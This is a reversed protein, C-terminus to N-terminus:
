ESTKAREDPSSVASLRGSATWGNLSQSLQSDPARDLWEVMKPAAFSVVEDVVEREADSFPCLVYDVVTDSPEPSGIGLKLRSYDAHGLEAEVSKLGNHGGSSGKTRYRVRGLPLSLDDIAVLVDRRTCTTTQSPSSLIQSVARGSLNMFTLPWLLLSTEEGKQYREWKALGPVEGSGLLSFSGSAKLTESVRDLLLFGFNHRTAVYKPGPNGLGVLLRL